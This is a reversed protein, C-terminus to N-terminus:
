MQHKCPVRELRQVVGSYTIFFFLSSRKRIKEILKLFNRNFLQMVIQTSCRLGYPVTRDLKYDHAYENFCVPEGAINMIGNTTWVSNRKFLTIMM